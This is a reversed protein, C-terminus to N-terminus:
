DVRVPEAHAGLGTLENAVADIGDDEAAVVLDFDHNAFQKALEYGIGSSAGTVVALPRQATTGMSTHEGDDRASFRLADAERSGGAFCVGSPMAARAPLSHLTRPARMAVVNIKM